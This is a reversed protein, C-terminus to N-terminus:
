PKGSREWFLERWQVEATSLLFSFVKNSTFCMYLLHKKLHTVECISDESSVHIYEQDLKENDEELIYDPYGIQESIAM